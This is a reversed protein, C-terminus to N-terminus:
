GDENDVIVGYKSPDQVKTVMITGEKGHGKHFDIMHTLPYDCIVDSNFVFFMGSSNDTTLIDKALRIPGATGLPEDEVSITIKVKYDEEMKALAEKMVEPRYAIALVVETVGANALAEIQHCLIPKDCFDVLPKPVTLTLPRLRTGYGGVLILAKM